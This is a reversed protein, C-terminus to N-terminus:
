PYPPDCSISSIYDLKKTATLKATNSVRPLAFEPNAGVGVGGRRFLLLTQLLFLGQEIQLFPISSSLFAIRAAYGSIPM